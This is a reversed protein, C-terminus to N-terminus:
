KQDRFFKFVFDDVTEIGNTAIFNEVDAKSMKVKLNKLASCCEGVLGADVCAVAVHFDANPEDVIAGIPFLDGGDVTWAKYKHPNKKGDLFYYMCLSAFGFAVIKGLFM